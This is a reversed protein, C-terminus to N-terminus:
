KRERFTIDLATGHSNSANASLEDYNASLPMLSFGHTPKRTLLVSEAADMSKKSYTLM